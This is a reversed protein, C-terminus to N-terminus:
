RFEKSYDQWTSITEDEFLGEIDKMFVNFKSDGILNTEQDIIYTSNCVMRMMNLSIL